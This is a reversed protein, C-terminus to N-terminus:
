RNPSDPARRALYEAPCVDNGEPYSWVFTRLMTLNCAVHGLHHKGSEDDLPEGAVIVKRLHRLACGLAVSWPMGKAWNWAAYKRRGYDFVQAAEEDAHHGLAQLAVILHGVSGTEQWLALSEMCALATSAEDLPGRQGAWTESLVRVPILELPLKGSNMRAGSGRAPSNLDGVPTAPRPVAGTPVPYTEANDPPYIRSM